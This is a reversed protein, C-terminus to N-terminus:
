LGACRTSSEPWLGRVARVRPAPLGPAPAAIPPSPARATRPYIEVVICASANWIGVDDAMIMIIRPKGATAM